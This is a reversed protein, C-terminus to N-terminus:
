LRSLYSFFIFFSKPMKALDHCWEERLIGQGLSKYSIMYTGYTGWRMMTKKQGNELDQIKKSWKKKKRGSQRWLEEKGLKDEKKGEGIERLDRRTNKIMGRIQGGM